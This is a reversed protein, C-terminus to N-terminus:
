ASLQGGTGTAGSLGGQGDGAAGGLGLDGLNLDQLGLEGLLSGLDLDQLGQLDLGQLDQLGLDGALDGLNLDDLNLDGLGLGELLSGLDGAQGGGLSGLLGGLLGQPDTVVQDAPPATVDVPVGFDTFSLTSTVSMTGGLDMQQSVRVVRDADDVWVTVVAPEADTPRTGLGLGLDGLVDTPLGSSALAAALDLTAVYRTTEVGDITETGDETVTGFERLSDLVDDPALGDAVSGHAGADGEVPMAYWSDSVSPVQVYVTDATAIQRVTGLPGLDLTFEGTGDAYDVVGSGTISTETGDVTVTADMSVRSTGAARTADAAQQVVVHAAPAASLTGPFGGSCGTLALATAAAGAAVVALRTRRRPAPRTM